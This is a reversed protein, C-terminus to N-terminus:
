LTSASSIDRLKVLDFCTQFIKENHYTLVRSGAKCSHEKIRSQDQHTEDFSYYSYYLSRVRLRGGRSSM